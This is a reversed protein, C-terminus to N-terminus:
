PPRNHVRDADIACFPERVLGAAAVVAVMRVDRRDNLDALAFLHRQLRAVREVALKSRTRRHGIKRREIDAGHVRQGPRDKDLTRCGAVDEFDFEGVDNRLRDREARDHGPQAKQAVHHGLREEHM